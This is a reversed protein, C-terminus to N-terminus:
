KDSEHNKLKNVVQKGHMLFDKVPDTSLLGHENYWAIMMFNCLVADLDEILRYECFRAAHNMAHKLREEVFENDGKKWNFRGHKKHGLAFRRAASVLGAYPLDHFDLDIETSTAGSKHKVLKGEM